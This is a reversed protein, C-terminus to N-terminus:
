PLAIGKRTLSSAGQDLLRDQYSATDTFGLTRLFLPLVSPVGDGSPSETSVVRLCGSGHRGEIKEPRGQILQIPRLTFIYDSGERFPLNTNM